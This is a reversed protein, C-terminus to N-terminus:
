ADAQDAAHRDIMAAMRDIPVGMPCIRAAAADRASPPTSMAVVGARDLARSPGAVFTWAEEWATRAHPTALACLGCHVCSMTRPFLAREEPLLPLFGEPRVAALFRERDHLLGLARAPMRVLVHAAMRYGLNALAVARNTFSAM